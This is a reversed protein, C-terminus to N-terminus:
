SGFDITPDITGRVAHFAEAFDDEIAVTALAFELLETDSTLGTKAKAKAILESSIRGAIRGDKAVTLGEDTAAQMVAEVMKGSRIPRVLRDEDVVPEGIVRHGSVETEAPRGRKGIGGSAMGSGSTRHSKTM